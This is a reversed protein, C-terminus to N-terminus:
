SFMAADNPHTEICPLSLLEWSVLNFLVLLVSVGNSVISFFFALFMHNFVRSFAFPHFSIFIKFQACKEIERERTVKKNSM